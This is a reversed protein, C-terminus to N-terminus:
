GETRFHAAVIDSAAEINAQGDYFGDQTVDEFWEVTATGDYGDLFAGVGQPIAAAQSHVIALPQTLSPASDVPLYSLWDDWGANNWKNDWAPILGRDFSGYYDSAAMLSDETYAAR